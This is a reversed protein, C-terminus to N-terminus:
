ARALSPPSRYYAPSRQQVMEWGSLPRTLPIEVHGEAKIAKRGRDLAGESAIAKLALSADERRVKAAWLGESGRGPTARNL